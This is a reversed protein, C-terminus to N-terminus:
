KQDVRIIWEEDQSRIVIDGTRGMKFNPSNKTLKDVKVTMVSNDQIQIDCWEPAKELIWNGKHAYVTDSNCAVSIRKEGGKRKGFEVFSASACLQPRLGQQVVEVLCTLNDYKVNIGATRRITSQASLSTVLLEKGDMSKSLRFWDDEKSVPEATWDANEPSTEIKVPLTTEAYAEFFLTQKDTKLTKVVAPSPKDVTKVTKVTKRKALKRCKEIQANCRKVNSSSRDIAMSAKFRVIAETYEAKNMLAIGENYSKSASQAFCVHPMVCLMIVMIKLKIMREM